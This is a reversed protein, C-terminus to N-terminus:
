RSEHRRGSYIRENDEVLKRSLVQAIRQVAFDVYESDHIKQRLELVRDSYQTRSSKSIATM